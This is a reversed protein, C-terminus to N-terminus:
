EFKTIFIANLYQLYIYNINNKAIGYTYYINSHKSFTNYGFRCLYKDKKM